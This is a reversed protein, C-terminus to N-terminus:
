IMDHEYPNPYLWSKPTAASHGKRANPKGLSLERPAADLCPLRGTFHPTWSLTADLFLHHGPCLSTWSSTIDLFLHCGPVLPTWSHTVDLVFHCRPILLTVDLFLHRGLFLRKWSFTVDLFFHSEKVTAVSAVDRHHPFRWLGWIQQQKWLAAATEDRSRGFQQQEWIGAAGLDSGNGFRQQGCM